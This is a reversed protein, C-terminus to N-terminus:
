KTTAAIAAKVAADTVTGLAQTGDNQYGQLKVSRLGNTDSDVSLSAISTNAGISSRSFREGTPSHYTLVQCGTVLLLCGLALLCCGVRFPNKVPPFPSFLTKTKKMIKVKEEIGPAKEGSAETYPPFDLLQRQSLAFRM